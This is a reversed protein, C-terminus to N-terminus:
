RGGRSSGSRDGGGETSPEVSIDRGDALRVVAGRIMNGREERSLDPYNRMVQGIYQRLKNRNEESLSRYREIDEKSPGQRERDGRDGRDRSRGRGSSSRGQKPEPSLQTEDYKLEIEEGAFSIRAAVEDLERAPVIEVLKIGAENAGEPTVLLSKKTERNYLTALQIDEFTAVARLAYTDSISLVRSFPSAERLAQFDAEEPAKPLLVPSTEPAARGLEGFLCGAGTGATLLVIWGQKSM